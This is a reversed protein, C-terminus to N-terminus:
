RRRGARRGTAKQKTSRRTKAAKARSVVPAATSMPVGLFRVIEPTTCGLGALMLIMDKALRDGRLQQIQLAVLLEISRAVQQLLKENLAGNGTM